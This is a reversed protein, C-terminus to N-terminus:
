VGDVYRFFGPRFNTKQVWTTGTWYQAYGGKLIVLPAQIHNMFDYPGLSQAGFWRDTVFDSIVVPSGDAGPRTYGQSDAECPDAIERAWIMNNTSQETVASGAGAPADALMEWLEHTFGVSWAFGGLKSTGVYIIADAVGNKMEHYALAGAVTGKDVLTISEANLPVATGRTIYVLKGDVHWLPAFDKSLAAQFAPLDNKLETDTVISSKNQVYIVQVASTKNATAGVGALLTVIAAAVAAGSHTTIKNRLFKM